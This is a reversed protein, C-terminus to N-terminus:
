CTINNKHLSRCLNIFGGKSNSIIKDAMSILYIDCLLDIFKIHPDLKSYHLNPYKNNPFTTFNKFMINQNKYFDICGIDDTAIHIDNFSNICEKNEEFHTQYDCKYDTNRVQISVYPKKLLNYRYKCMDIVNSKIKLQQFLKYGASGGDNGRFIIINECIDNNPLHLLINNLYFDRNIKICKFTENNLIENRHQQFEKPYITNDPNNVIQFIQTKNFIIIPDDLDFYNDADVKYESKIFNVLLIRNFKECYEKLKIITCLIDNLGGSPEFYLYLM